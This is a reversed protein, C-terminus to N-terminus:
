LVNQMYEDNKLNEICQKTQSIQESYETKLKPNSKSFSILKELKWTQKQIEFWRRFGTLNCYYVPEPCAEAVKLWSNVIAIDEEEEPMLSITDRFTKEIYKMIYNQQIIVKNNHILTPTDMKNNLEAYKPKINDYTLLNITRSQWDIEKEELVLRVAISSVSIPFNFLLLTAM